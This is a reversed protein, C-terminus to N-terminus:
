PRGSVDLFTALPLNKRLTAQSKIPGDLSELANNTSPVRM